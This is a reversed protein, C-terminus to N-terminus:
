SNRKDILIDEDGSLFVLMTNLDIRKVSEAIDL